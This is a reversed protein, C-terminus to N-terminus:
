WDFNRLLEALERTLQPFRSQERTLLSVSRRIALGKIERFTLQDPMIRVVARPLITVWKETRVMSILSLTNHVTVKADELLTVHEPIDIQRSLNNQVFGAAMVQSLTPQQPQTALPHNPACVLGFADEFLAEQQIGNLIPQGSAIGLDAQGRILADIVKDTDTDRLEVKIGPHRTTLTEIASPFVLDAVSPVSAIRLLGQPANAASEIADVTDEFQRLQEQALAFIEEGLPTLRNKREGEFLRAGLHEELHKLTMSVASQTRGLQLAADALNGTQAVTAFCRLMAIKIAM